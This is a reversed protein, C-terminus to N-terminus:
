YVTHVIDLEKILSIRRKKSVVGRLNKQLATKLGVGKNLAIIVQNEKDPFFDSIKEKYWPPYKHIM